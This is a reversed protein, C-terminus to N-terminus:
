QRQAAGGIMKKILQKAGGAAATVVIQGGASKANQWIKKVKEARNVFPKLAEDLASVIAILPDPAHDDIWANIYVALYGESSLQQTLGTLFFTKGQGWESNINLVFSKAGGVEVLEKSRRSLFDIIFRADDKRNLLDDVWIEDRELIQPEL